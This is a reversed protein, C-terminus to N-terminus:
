WTAVVYFVLNCKHSIVYYNIDIAVNMALIVHVKHKAPWTNRITCNSSASPWADIGRKCATSRISRFEILRAGVQCALHLYIFNFLRIFLSFFHRGGWKARGYLFVNVFDDGSYFGRPETILVRRRKEPATDDRM